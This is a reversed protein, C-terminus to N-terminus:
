LLVAIPRSEVRDNVMAISKFTVQVYYSGYVEICSCLMFM